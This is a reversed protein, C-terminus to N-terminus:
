PAVHPDSKVFSPAGCRMAWRAAACRSTAFPEIGAVRQEIFARPFVPEPQEFFSLSLAEGVVVHRMWFFVGAM